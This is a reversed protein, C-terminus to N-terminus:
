NKAAEERKRFLEAADAQVAESVKGIWAVHDMALELWLEENFPVASDSGQRSGLIGAETFGPGRWDVVTRCYAELGGTLVGPLAAEGPRRICVERDDDLRVWRERSARLRQLYSKEAV